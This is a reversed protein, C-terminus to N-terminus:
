TQLQNPRKTDSKWLNWKPLNGMALINQEVHEFRSLERGTSREFDNSKRSCKKNLSGSPRGRPKVVLPEQIKKLRPDLPFIAPNAPTRSLNNIPQSSTNQSQHNYGSSHQLSSTESDYIGSNHSGDVEHFNRPPPFDEPLFLPETLLRNEPVLPSHQNETPSTHQPSATPELELDSHYRQIQQGKQSERSDWAPCRTFRWHCHIYEIPILKDQYM